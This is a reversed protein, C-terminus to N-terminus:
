EFLDSRKIDSIYFRIPKEWDNDNGNHASKVDFDSNHMTVIKSFYFENDAYKEVTFDETSSYTIFNRFVIPDNPVSVYM